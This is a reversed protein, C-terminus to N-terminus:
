PGWSPLILSFCIAENDFFNYFTWFNSFWTNCLLPNLDPPLFLSVSNIFTCLFNFRWTGEEAECKLSAVQKGNKYPLLHRKGLSVSGSIGCSSFTLSLLFCPYPALPSFFSILDISQSPSVFRVIGEEIWNGFHRYVSYYGGPCQLQCGELINWIIGTEQCEYEMYCGERTHPNSRTLWKWYIFYPLLLPFNLKYFVTIRKKSAREQRIPRSVKIFYSM